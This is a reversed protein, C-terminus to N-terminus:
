SLSAHDLRGKFRVNQAAELGGGNGRGHSEAIDRIGRGFRVAAFYERADRVANMRLGDYEKPSDLIRELVGRLVKADAVPVGICNIGSKVYGHMSRSESVVIIKGLAMNELLVTHGSGHPTDALPIVVVCARRYWNMLELAPVNQYIEVGQGFSNHARIKGANFSDTIVVLREGLPLAELLTEFDKGDNTGVALIFREEECPNAKQFYGCDVMMPLFALREPRVGFHREISPSQSEVLSVIRDVGKLLVRWVANRLGTHNKPHLLALNLIIIKPTAVRLRRALLLFIASVEHVAVICDEESAKRLIWFTQWLRWAQLGYPTLAKPLRSSLEVDCGLGGLEVMGWLRHSPVLRDRVLRVEHHVPSPFAYWFKMKGNELQGGRRSKM